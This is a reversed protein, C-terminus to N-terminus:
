LTEFLYSITSNFNLLIWHFFGGGNTQVLASRFLALIGYFVGLSSFTLVIQYISIGLLSLLWGWSNLDGSVSVFMDVLSVISLLLYIIFIFDVMWTIWENMDFFYGIALTILLIIIFFVMLSIAEALASAFANEIKTRIAIKTGIVITIAALPILFLLPM